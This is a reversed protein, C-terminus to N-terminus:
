RSRPAHLSALFADAIKHYGQDRLHLRDIWLDDPYTLCNEIDVMDVGPMGAILLRVARNYDTIAAQKPWTNPIAGVFSRLRPQVSHATELIAKIKQPDQEGNLYDNTGAMLFLINPRYSQVWEAIHALIGGEPGGAAWWGSRGEHRGMVSGRLQVGSLYATYGEIYPFGATLSDGAALAIPTKLMIPLFVKNSM